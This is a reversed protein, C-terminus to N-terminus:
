GETGTKGNEQEILLRDIDHIADIIPTTTGRSLRNHIATTSVQMYDALMKISVGKEIMLKRTRVEKKNYVKREM